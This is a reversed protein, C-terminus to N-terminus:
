NPTPDAIPPGLWPRLRSLDGDPTLYSEFRAVLLNYARTKQILERTVNVTSCNSM